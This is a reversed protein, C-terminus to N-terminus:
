FMPGKQTFFSKGTKAYVLFDIVIIPILIAPIRLDVTAMGILIIAVVVLKGIAYIRESSMCLEQRTENQKPRLFVM